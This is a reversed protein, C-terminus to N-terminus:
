ASLLRYLMLGLFFAAFGMGLFAFTFGTANATNGDRVYLRWAILNALSALLTGFGGVSVGWLLARWHQTFDAFILAAPVNSM